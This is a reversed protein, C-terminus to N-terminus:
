TPSIASSDSLGRIPVTCAATIVSAITSSPARKLSTAAGGDPASPRREFALEELADAAVHLHLRLRLGPLMM